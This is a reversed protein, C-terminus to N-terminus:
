LTCAGVIRFIVIVIFDIVRFRIISTFPFLVIRLLKLLLHLIFNQLVPETTSPSSVPSERVPSEGLQYQDQYQSQYM